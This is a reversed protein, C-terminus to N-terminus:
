QVTLTVPVSHQLAGSIGSVTITYTGPTTGTVTQQAIGTGGAFTFVNERVPTASSL